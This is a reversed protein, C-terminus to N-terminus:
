RLDVYDYYCHVSHLSIDCTMVVRVTSCTYNKRLTCITFSNENKQQKYIRKYM